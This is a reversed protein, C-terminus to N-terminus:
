HDGFAACLESVHHCDGPAVIYVSRILRVFLIRNEGVSTSSGFYFGGTVGVNKLVVKSIIMSDAEAGAADGVRKLM